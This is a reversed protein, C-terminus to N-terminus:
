NPQALTLCCLRKTSINRPPENGACPSIAPPPDADALHTASAVACDRQEALKAQAPMGATRNRWDVIYKNNLYRSNEGPDEIRIFRLLASLFGPALVGGDVGALRIRNSTQPPLDCVQRARQASAKSLFLCPLVM